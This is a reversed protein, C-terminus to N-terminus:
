FKSGLWAHVRGVLLYLQIIPLTLGVVLFTTPILDLWPDPSFVGPQLWAVLGLAVWHSVCHPCNTGRNWFGGDQFWKQWTAEAVDTKTATFSASATVVALAGLEAWNVVM